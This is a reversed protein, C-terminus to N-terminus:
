KYKYTKTKVIACNLLSIKIAIKKLNTLWQCFFFANM